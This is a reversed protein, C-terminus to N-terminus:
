GESLSLSLFPRSPWPKIDPGSAMEPGSFGTNLLFFLVLDALEFSSVFTSHPDFCPCLHHFNLLHIIESSKVDIVVGWKSCRWGWLGVDSKYEAESQHFWLKPSLSQGQIKKKKVNRSYNWLFVLSNLPISLGELRSLDWEYTMNLPSFFLGSINEERQTLLPKSFFLFSPM